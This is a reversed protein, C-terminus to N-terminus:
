TLIREKGMRAEDGNSSTGSERLRGVCLCFYIIRGITRM